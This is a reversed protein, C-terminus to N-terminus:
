ALVLQAVSGDEHAFLHWRGDSRECVHRVAGWADIIIATRNPAAGDIGLIPSYTGTRIPAKHAVSAICRMYEPLASKTM